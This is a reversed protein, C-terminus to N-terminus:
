YVAWSRLQDRVLIQEGLFIHERQLDCLYQYRKHLDQLQQHLGPMSYVGGCIWCPLYILLHRQLLLNFQCLLPLRHLIHLDPLSQCLILVQSDNCQSLLLHSLNVPMHYWNPIQTSLSHEPLVLLYQNNDRLYCLAVRLYYLSSQYQHNWQCLHCCM